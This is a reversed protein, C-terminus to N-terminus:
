SPLVVEEPVREGVSQRPPLRAEHSMIATEEPDVPSGVNQGRETVSSSPMAVRKSCTKRSLKAACSRRVSATTQKASPVHTPPM